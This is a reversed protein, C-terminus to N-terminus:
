DFMGIRIVEPELMIDTQRKVEAQVDKIVKNIDEATGNKDNVVFGCHKVSVSAGGVRYGSLGAEMILKGAFNGEPRKFTSGASPFELPQKTRRRELFDQMKATIDEYSGKNLAFVTKLAILNEKKFISTRYGFQLEDKTLTKIRCDETLVDVTKVVFSMEGDYAGANMVMAGGVSGPIGYAFELGTLSNNAAELCVKSLPVSAYATIENEEVSLGTFDGTLKIVVGDFGRDSVLLNSGNGLIFYPVEEEYIYAMLAKLSEINDVEVFLSAPGGVRFTTHDKLYVTEQVSKQNMIEKIKIAHEQKM